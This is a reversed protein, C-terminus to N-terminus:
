NLVDKNKNKNYFDLYSQLIFSSAIKDINNNKEEINFDMDAMVRLAQNTTFREDQLIVEVKKFYKELKDLFLRTYVCRKGETNDLNKPLGLVIHTIGEAKIIEKIDKMIPKYAEDGNKVLVSYPSAIINLRDSLSVGVYKEGYDLGLFRM